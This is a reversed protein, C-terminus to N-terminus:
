TGYKYIIHEIQSNGATKLPNAPIPAMEAIVRFMDM